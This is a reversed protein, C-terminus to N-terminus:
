APKVAHPRDKMATTNRYPYLPCKTSVCLAREHTSGGSCDLCYQYIAAKRSGGANGGNMRYPYLPCEKHTCNRVEATNFGSCDVCRSRIAQQRTM